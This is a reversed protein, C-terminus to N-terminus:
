AEYVTVQHKHKQHEWKNRIENSLITDTTFVHNILGLKFINGLFLGEEAHTILLYVEEIGAERLAKAAYNFTRGYSCLDDMIIAKKGKVMEPNSLTLADIDSSDFDRVKECILVNNMEPYRAKAGKDPYCVHDVSEDFGVQKKVKELLEPNKLIQKSNKILKITVDSHAEFVDVIPINWNNILESIYNLTFPFGNQSRDMRGYPMQTIILKEVISTEQLFRILFHLKVFDENGKYFWKVENKEKIILSALFEKKLDFEGNSYKPFKVEQQNLLIM